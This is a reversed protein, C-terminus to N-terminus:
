SGRYNFEFFHYKLIDKTDANFTSTPITDPKPLGSFKSQNASTPTTGNKPRKNSTSTPIESTTQDNTTTSSGTATSNSNQNNKNKRKRSSKSRPIQDTEPARFNNNNSESNLNINGNQNSMLKMCMDVLVQRNKNTQDILIKNNKDTQEQLAEAQIKQSQLSHQMIIQSSKENNEEKIKDCESKVTTAIIKKLKSNKGLCGEFGTADSLKQDSGTDDDENDIELYHQQMDNLNNLQINEHEPTPPSFLESQNPDDEDRSNQYSNVVAEIKKDHNETNNSM